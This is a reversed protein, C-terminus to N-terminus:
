SSPRGTFSTPTPSASSSRCGNSGRRSRARGRRRSLRELEALGTPSITVIYGRIPNETEVYIEVTYTGAPAKGATLGPGPSGEERKGLGDRGSRRHDQRQGAEVTRACGSM